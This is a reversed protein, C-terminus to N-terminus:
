ELLWRHTRHKLEPSNMMGALDKPKEKIQYINWTGKDIWCPPSSPSESGTQMWGPQTRSRFYFSKSMEPKSRRWSWLQLLGWGTAAVWIGVQNISQWGFRVNVTSTNYGSFEEMWSGNYGHQLNCQDWTTADHRWCKESKTQSISTIHTLIKLMILLDGNVKGLRHCEDKQPWQFSPSAAATEPTYKLQVRLYCFPLHAGM